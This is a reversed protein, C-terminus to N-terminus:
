CDGTTQLDINLPYAVMSDATQEPLNDGLLKVLIATINDEGGHENAEKILVKCANELDDLNNLITRLLDDATLKNHLGDSCLLLIDDRQPILRVVDPYVETQAGLAQLVVSKM